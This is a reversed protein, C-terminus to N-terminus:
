IRTGAVSSFCPFANFSCLKHCCKAADCTRCTQGSRSLMQFSHDSSHVPLCTLSEFGFRSFPEGMNERRCEAEKDRQRVFNWMLVGPEM